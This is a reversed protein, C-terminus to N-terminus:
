PSAEAPRHRSRWDDGYAQRAAWGNHARCLLRVNNAESSGGQGFPQWHDFELFAREECRRGDVAVFTCQHGDRAAVERKIAQPIYRSGPRPTRPQRPTATEGFKEARLDGLLADLARELVHELEGGPLRHRLLAQAELLKQRVAGSLTLRLLYRDESLPKCDARATAPHGCDAPEPSRLERPPPAATSPPPSSPLAPPTGGPLESPPSSAAVPPLPSHPPFSPAAFLSPSFSAAPPSLSSAPPAPTPAAPPASPRAPAKRIQAAVDARPFRSALLQEIERKSRHSAAELLERHNEETLHPSLLTIGTLHLAGREVREFIVPFRRATRGALIRKYATPESMHLRDVCYIFMSSCAHELFLARADVEALHALLDATLQHDRSVLLGLTQLLAEPPLAALDYRNIM